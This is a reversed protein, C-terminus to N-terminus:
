GERLAAGKRAAVRRIVPEIDKAKGLPGPSITRGDKAVLYVVDVVETRWRSWRRATMVTIDALASWPINVPAKFCRAVVIGNEALTLSPCRFVLMALGLLSLAGLILAVLWGATHGDIYGFPGIKVESYREDFAKVVGAVAFLGPIVFMALKGGVGPTFVIPLRDETMANGGNASM